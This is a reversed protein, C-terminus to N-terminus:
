SDGLLAALYFTTLLAETDLLFFLSLLCSFGNSRSSYVWRPINQIAEFAFSCFFVPKGMGGDM